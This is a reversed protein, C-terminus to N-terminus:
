VAQGMVADMERRVEQKARALEGQRSFDAEQEARRLEREVRRGEIDLFSMRLSAETVGEHDLSAHVVETVASALAPDEDSLGALPDDFNIELHRRARKDAESSFHDDRLRDFYERGLEGGALCMALFTREAALSAVGVTRLGGPTAAAPRGGPAAPRSPQGTLQTTVYDVPVDLRDALKRVLEDRM